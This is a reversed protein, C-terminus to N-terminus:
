HAGSLAAGVCTFIALFYLCGLSIWCISIILGAMAFGHGERNGGKKMGNLAIASFILGLISLGPFLALIFGAIAMSQQSQGTPSYNAYSVPTPQNYGPYPQPQAGPSAAMPPPPAAPAGSPAIFGPVQSAPEWSSMGEHWVLDGASLQGAALMHRLAEDSVPGLQQNNKAYFWQM